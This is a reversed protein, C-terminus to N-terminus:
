ISRRSFANTASCPLKLKAALPRHIRGYSGPAAKNLMAPQEFVEGDTVVGGFTQYGDNGPQEGPDTDSTPKLRVTRISTVEPAASSHRSQWSKSAERRSRTLRVVNRITPAHKAPSANDM